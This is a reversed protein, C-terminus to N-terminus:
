SLESAALEARLLYEVVPEDKEMQLTTLQNYLSLIRPKETSQHHSRLIQLAKHGDDPADNLVLNISTDDLM